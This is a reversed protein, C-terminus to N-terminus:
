SFKKFFNFRVTVPAFVRQVNGEEVLIEKAKQCLAKVESEKILECRKLREIQNDLDSTSTM